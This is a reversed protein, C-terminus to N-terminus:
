YLKLITHSQFKEPRFKLINEVLKNITEFKQIQKYCGTELM